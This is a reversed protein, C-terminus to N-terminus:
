PKTASPRNKRWSRLGKAGLAMAGLALLATTSPEPVQGAVITSGSTDWAFGNIAIDPGNGGLPNALGIDVWGYRLANGQTSDQFRFLLFKEAYSSPGAYSKGNIYAAYAAVGSQTAGGGIQNWTQGANAMVFFSGLTKIQLYGAQQKGTIWRSSSIGVQVSHTHFGLQATGPLTNIIYSSNAQPGVHIPNASLDTFVIDANSTQPMAVAGTALALLSLLKASDGNAHCVFTKPQPKPNNQNM